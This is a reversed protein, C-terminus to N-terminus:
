PAMDVGPEHTSVQELWPAVRQFLVDQATLAVCGQFSEEVCVVQVRPDSILRKGPTGRMVADLDERFDDSGYLLLVRANRSLLVNLGKLYPASRTRVPHPGFWRRGKTILFKKYVDRHVPSRLKEFNIRRIGEMLPRGASQHARVEVHSRGLPSNILCVGEPTPLDSAAALVSWGGFCNAVILLHDPARGVLWDAAACIDQAFPYRTDGKRYIGTSEGVGVYDFRLSHFGREALNRAFRARLRNRGSSPYAGAGWPILISHKNAERPITLIGAMHEHGFPIQVLREMWMRSSM